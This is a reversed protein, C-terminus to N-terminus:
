VHRFMTWAASMEAANRDSTLSLHADGVASLRLAIPRTQADAKEGPSRDHHAARGTHRDIELRHGTIDFDPHSPHDTFEFRHVGAPDSIQM